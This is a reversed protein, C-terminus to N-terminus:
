RIGTNEIRIAEYVQRGLRTLVLRGESNVEILQLVFLKAMAIQDFNVGAGSDQLKLLNEREVQSLQRLM